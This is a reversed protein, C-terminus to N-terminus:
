DDSFTEDPFPIWTGDEKMIIFLDGGEGTSSCRFGDAGPYVQRPDTQWKGDPGRTGIAIPVFTVMRDLRVREAYIWVADRCPGFPGQWNKHWSDMLSYHPDAPDYNRDRTIELITTDGAILSGASGIGITFDSDYNPIAAISATLQASSFNRRKGDIYGKVILTALADARFGGSNNGTDISSDPPMAEEIPLDSYTTMYMACATQIMQMNSKTGTLRALGRARGIAPLLLGALIGIIAIVVLLEIITFARSRRGRPVHVCNRDAAPRLATNM